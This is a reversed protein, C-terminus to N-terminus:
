LLGRTKCVEFIIEATEWDEATDIDQVMYRPLVLPFSKKSWVKKSELFKESDFWYLQGADYYIEEFDQTRKLENEPWLM